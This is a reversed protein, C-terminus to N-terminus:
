PHLIEMLVMYSTSCTLISVINSGSNWEIRRNLLVPSIYPRRRTYLLFLFLVPYFFLSSLCSFCVCVDCKYFFTKYQQQLYLDLLPPEM